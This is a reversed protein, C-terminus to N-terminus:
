PAFLVGVEQKQLPGPDIIRGVTLTANNRV